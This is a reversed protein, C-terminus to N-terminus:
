HAPLTNSTDVLCKWLLSWFVSCSRSSLYSFELLASLVSIEERQATPALPYAAKAIHCLPIMSCLFFIGCFTVCTTLIVNYRNLGFRSNGNKRMLTKM